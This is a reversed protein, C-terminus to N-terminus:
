EASLTITSFAILNEKLLDGIAAGENLEIQISNSDASVKAKGITVGGEYYLPVWTETRPM